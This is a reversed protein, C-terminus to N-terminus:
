KVLARVVDEMNVWVRDFALITDQLFVHMELWDKKRLISKGSLSRSIRSIPMNTEPHVSHSQWILEGMEAEMLARFEEIQEYVLLRLGEDRLQVDLYWHAGNEDALMRCYCDKVHLPYTAWNVKRGSASRHRDMVGGWSTWFATRLASAEERSLM